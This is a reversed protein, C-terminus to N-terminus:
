NWAALEDAPLPEDFSPPISVHVFGLERPRPGSLASLRAVPVGSRSILIGPPPDAIPRRGGAPLM